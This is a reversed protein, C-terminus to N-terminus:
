SYFCFYVPQDSNEPLKIRTLNRHVSVLRTEPNAKKGRRSILLLKNLSPPEENDAPVLELHVLNDRTSLNLNNHNGDSLVVQEGAKLTGMEFCMKPKAIALLDNLPDIDAAKPIVAQGQEDILYYDSRDELFIVNFKITEPDDSIFFLRYCDTEQDDFVRVITNGNGFKLAGLRKLNGTTLHEGAAALGSVLHQPKNRSFLELKAEATFSLISSTFYNVKDTTIM